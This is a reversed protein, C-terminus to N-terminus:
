DEDDEEDDDEPERLEWKNDVLKTFREDKGRNLHGRVVSDTAGLKKSIEYVSLPGAGRMANVVESQSLGRGGGQAVARENLMARRASQLRERLEILPQLNALRREILALQKDIGNLQTEKLHSALEDIDMDALVKKAM